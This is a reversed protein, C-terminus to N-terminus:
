PRVQKGRRNRCSNRTTRTMISNNLLCMNVHRSQTRTLVAGGSKRFDALFILRRQHPSGNHREFKREHSDQRPIKEFEMRMRCMYRRAVATYFNMRTDNSRINSIEARSDRWRLAAARRQKAVPSVRQQLEPVRERTPPPPPATEGAQGIGLV